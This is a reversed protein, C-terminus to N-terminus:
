LLFESTTYPIQIMSQPLSSLLYQDSTPKSFSFIFKYHM